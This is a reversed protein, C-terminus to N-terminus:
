GAAGSYTRLGLYPPSTVVCDVSGSPLEDLVAYADGTHLVARRRHARM